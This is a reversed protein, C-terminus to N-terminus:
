FGRLESPIIACLQAPNLYRVEPYAGDGDRTKVQHEVALFGLPTMGLYVGRGQPCAPFNYTIEVGVELEYASDTALHQEREWRERELRMDTKGKMM